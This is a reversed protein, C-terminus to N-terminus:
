RASPQPGSGHDSSRVGRVSATLKLGLSTSNRHRDPSPIRQEAIEAQVSSATAAGAATNAFDNGRMFM